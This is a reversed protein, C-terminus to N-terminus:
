AARSLLRTVRTALSCRCQITESAPANIDGPFRLRNGAGSVFAEGLPRRQGNMTSHTDRVRTDRATLWTREMTDRDIVGDELAQEFALEAGQHVARLAETRAIVEARFKLFREQYRQTMREVQATSLVIEGRVARRVTADFRRDRLDRDLAEASGQTLLRRFNEVAQQQRSTLGISNRFARATDRPNLGRRIGDALAGRTAIRQEQVFETVLRLRNQRMVDVARFNVQDFSVIQDFAAAMGGSVNQGSEVIISNILDALSAAGARASDELAENLRGEVALEALEDLTNQEQAVLIAALFGELIRPEMARLLREIDDQDFEFEDAM